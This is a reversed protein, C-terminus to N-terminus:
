ISKREHKHELQYRAEVIKSKEKFCDVFIQPTMDHMLCINIIYKFCDILEEKIHEKDYIMDIKRHTKWPITDLVESLEKHLSLITEKTAAIREDDNLLDPNKFHCQFDKQIKWIEELETM